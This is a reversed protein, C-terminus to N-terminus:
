LNLKIDEFGEYSTGECIPNERICTDLGYKKENKKNNAERVRKRHWEKGEVANV